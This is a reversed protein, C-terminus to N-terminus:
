SLTCTRKSAKSSPTTAPAQGQPAVATAPAAARSPRMVGPAAAAERRLRRGVETYLIHDGLEYGGELLNEVTDPLQVRWLVFEVACCESDEATVHVQSLDSVGFYRRMVDRDWRGTYNDGRPPVAEFLRPDILDLIAVVFEERCLVRDLYNSWQASLVGDEFLTKAVSLYQTDGQSLVIKIQEISLTGKAYPILLLRELAFKTADGWFEQDPGAQLEVIRWLEDDSLGVKKAIGFFVELRIDRSIELFRAKDVRGDLAWRLLPQYKEKANEGLAHRLAGGYKALDCEDEYGWANWWKSDRAVESFFRNVQGLALLDRPTLAPRNGYSAHRFADLLGNQPLSDLYSGPVAPARAEGPRRAGDESECGSAPERVPEGTPVTKAARGSEFGM